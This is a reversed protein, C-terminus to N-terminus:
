QMHRLCGYVKRCLYSRNKESREGCEVADTYKSLKDIEADCAILM